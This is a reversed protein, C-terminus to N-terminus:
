WSVRLAKGITKSSGTSTIQTCGSTWWYYTNVDYLVVMGQVCWFGKKVNLNQDIHLGEVTPKWDEFDCLWWPRWCIVSDMSCLLNDTPFPPDGKEWIKSFAECVKPRSRVFWTFQSQAIGHSSIFGPTVDGPWNDDSWTDLDNRDIDSGLSELWDWFYSRAQNVEEASLVNKVITWGENQLNM